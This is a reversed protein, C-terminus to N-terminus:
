PITHKHKTHATTTNPCCHYRDIPCLRGHRYYHAQKQAYGVPVEVPDGGCQLRQALRQTHPSREQEEKHKSEACEVSSIAALRGDAM